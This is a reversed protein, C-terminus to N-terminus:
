VTVGEPAFVVTAARRDGSDAAFAGPDPVDTLQVKTGGRTQGVSVDNEYDSPLSTGGARTCIAITLFKQEGRGPRVAPPNSSASSNFAPFSISTRKILWVIGDLTVSAGFSVNEVAGESGDARKWFGIVNSAGIDVNSHWIDWGTPTTVTTTGFNLWMILVDGAAIGSPLNVDHAAAAGLSTTARDADQAPYVFPQGRRMTAGRRRSLTPHGFPGHTPVRLM